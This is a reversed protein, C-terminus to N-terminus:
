LIVTALTTDFINILVETSGNSFITVLANSLIFSICASWKGYRSFYGACMGSLAFSAACADIRGRSLCCVIGMIIGASCGHLSGFRVAFLLVCLVCLTGTVSFIGAIGANGFGCLVGGAFLATSVTQEPTLSHRLRMSFVLPVSIHFARSAIWVTACEVVLVVIDYILPYGGFTKDAFLLFGGSTLVCLTAILSTIAPTRFRHPLFREWILSFVAISIVYKGIPILGAASSVLGAIISLACWYAGGAPFTAVFMAYGLPHAGGVLTTRALLFACICKFILLIDVQKTAPTRERFNRKKRKRKKLPKPLDRSM